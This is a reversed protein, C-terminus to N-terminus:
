HTCISIDFHGNPATIEKLKFALVRNEACEKLVYYRQIVMSIPTSEDRCDACLMM